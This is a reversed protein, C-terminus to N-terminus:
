TKPRGDRNIWFVYKISELCAFIKFILTTRALCLMKVSAQKFFCFVKTRRYIFHLYKFLREVKMQGKQLMMSYFGM